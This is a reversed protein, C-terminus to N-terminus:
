ITAGLRQQGQRHALKQEINKIANTNVNNGEKIVQAEHWIIEFYDKFLRVVRPHKVAIYYEEDTNFYRYSVLIVEESDIVMFGLRPPTHNSVDYYRLNYGYPNKEILSKVRDLRSLNPFVMIEKYQIGRRESVKAISRLYRDFARRDNETRAKVIAEPTAPGWTTDCIQSKAEMVRRSMYEYLEAPTDFIKVEVGDLSTITREFGEIVLSELHDIKSKREIVLYMATGGLLLLTMTPIRNSFGRDLLGLFDLFSVFISGVAVITLVIEEYYRKM